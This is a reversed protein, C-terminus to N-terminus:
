EQKDERILMVLAIILKVIGIAFFYLGLFRLPKM